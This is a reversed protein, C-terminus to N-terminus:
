AEDAMWCRVERELRVGTEDAVRAGVEEILGFVDRASAGGRNVIFNGHLPSVIAAGRELGRLGLDAILQGASRGESLERDPNKFICGACAETVPQVRNKELLFERARAQVEHTTAPELRLVAAVVVREGLRGDRYAPDCDERELDRVEGEPTLVRVTEVVDWIEGWRGGANTALAGGLKGPVGVLGELGRWGLEGAKRVLGPLSSGCWAVLRTDGDREAPAVRPDPSAEFPAADGAGSEDVGTPRFTRDLRATAIVAGAHLGDDVVLDAGAGLLRVRMGAERAARWALHLEEPDAPELLWEAQGGVRM